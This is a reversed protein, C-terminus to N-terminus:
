GERCRSDGHSGFLPEGDSGALLFVFRDLDARLQPTSYAPQRHLRGPLRGPPRPRPDTV